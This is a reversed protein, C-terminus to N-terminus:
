TGPSHREPEYLMTCVNLQRFMEEHEQFEKFQGSGSLYQMFAASVQTEKLSKMTTLNLLKVASLDQPPCSHVHKYLQVHEPSHIDDHFDSSTSVKVLETNLVWPNINAKDGFQTVGEYPNLILAFIFLVQDLAKWRKEIQKKM